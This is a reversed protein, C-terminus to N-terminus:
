RYCIKIKFNHYLYMLGLNVHCPIVCWTMMCFMKCKIIIKPDHLRTNCKQWSMDHCIVHWSFYIYINVYIILLFTKIDNAMIYMNTFWNTNYINICVDMLSEIWSRTSVCWVVLGNWLKILLSSFNLKTTNLM